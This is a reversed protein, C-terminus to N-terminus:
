SPPSPSQSTSTVPGSSAPTTVTAVNSLPVSSGYYDVRIGDLIRPNAKGARIRSLAEDLFVMANEMKANAQKYNEQVDIM